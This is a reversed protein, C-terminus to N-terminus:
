VPYDIGKYINAPLTYPEVGKSKSLEVIKDDPIPLFRIQHQSNINTIVPSPIPHVVMFLSDIQRDIMQNAADDFSLFKVNMDDYSMGYLKLLRQTIIENTLGKAGPSITMGKLQEISSIKSDAMVTIQSALPFLVALERINKIPGIKSFYGQGEWAEATTDRLSLAINYKGEYLGMLNGATTGPFTAGRIGPNAKKIDELMVSGIVQFTGGATSTAWKLEYKKSVQGTKKSDPSVKKVLAVSGRFIYGVKNVAKVQVWNKNTNSVITLKTGKKVVTLIKATPSPTMRVAAQNSTVSLQRTVATAASAVGALGLMFSLIFFITLVPRKKFM